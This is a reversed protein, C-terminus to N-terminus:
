KITGDRNWRQMVGFDPKSYVGKGIPVGIMKYVRVQQEPQGPCTARQGVGVRRGVRVTGDQRGHRLNVAIYERGDFAITAAMSCSAMSQEESDCGLAILPLSMVGIAVPLRLRMNM